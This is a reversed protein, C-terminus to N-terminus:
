RTAAFSTSPRTRTPAPSATTSRRRIRCAVVPRRLRAVARKPNAAAFARARDYVPSNLESTETELADPTLAETDEVAGGWAGLLIAVSLLAADWTMGNTKM